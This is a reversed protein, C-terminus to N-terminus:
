RVGYISTMHLRAPEQYWGQMLPQLEAAMRGKLGPPLHLILSPAQTCVAMSINSIVHYTLNPGVERQNM